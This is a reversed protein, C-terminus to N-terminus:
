CCRASKGRGGRRKECRARGGPVHGRLGPVRV